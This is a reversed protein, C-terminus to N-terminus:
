SFSVGDTEFWYERRNSRWLSKVLLFGENRLPKDALFRKLRNNARNELRGTGQNGARTRLRWSTSFPHKWDTFLRIPSGVFLGNEEAVNTLIDLRHIESYYPWRYMWPMLSDIVRGVRREEYFRAAEILEVSAEPHYDLTLPGFERPSTENSPGSTPM